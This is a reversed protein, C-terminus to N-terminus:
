LILLMCLASISDVGVVIMICTLASKNGSVSVLSGTATKSKYAYIASSIIGVSAFSFKKVGICVSLM